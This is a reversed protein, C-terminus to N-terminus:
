RGGLARYIKTGPRGTQKMGFNAQAKKIAARTVPGIRGDAEGIDYGQGILLIQLDLRQARSLGPDSTPWPTKLAKGGKLRDSLHSIALAYSEAANYSYLANFNGFVLFAPGKTGAPGILGASAKGSPKKGNIGTIGRTAWTAASARKKRGSPGKYGRPLRVEYGWSQGSRWGAKKLYNATSALADPVSNVLDRRGDGDFDVALRRYTSPIFQTQGFAGAWSGRLDALKLDGRSVLKLATILEGRFFSARRGACAINALAHPIYFDGQDQGYNSEIGWLAAIVYRDVGYAKEIARLVRDHKKLMALGTDIRDQDVLFAMYDWIPTRYEPQSRSFRVAKEDFKVGSLAKVAVARSVGAKIAANRIGAVCSDLSAAAVPHSTFIGIALALCHRRTLSQGVVNALGRGAPRQTRVSMPQNFRLTRKSVLRNSNEPFGTNASAKLRGPRYAFRSAAAPFNPACM